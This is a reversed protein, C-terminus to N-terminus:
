SLRKKSAVAGLGLLGLGLLAITGPEPVRTSSTVRGIIDITYEDGGPLFIETEFNGSRFGNTGNYAITTGTANKTVDQPGNGNLSLNTNNLSFADSYEVCTGAGVCSGSLTGTTGNPRWLLVQNGASDTVEVTFVSTANASINQQGLGARIFYDADFKLEVLIGGPNTPTPAIVPITFTANLDQNSSSNTSGGGALQSLSHLYVEATGTRSDGTSKSIGAAGAGAPTLSAATQPTLAGSPNFGVGITATCTYSVGLNTTDCGTPTASTGNLAAASNYSETGSTGTTGLAAGTTGLAQDGISFKFNTFHMFAEGFGGPNSITASSSAAYALGLAAGVCAVVKKINPKAM